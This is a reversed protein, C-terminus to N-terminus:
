VGLDRNNSLLKLGNISNVRIGYITSNQILKAQKNNWINGNCIIKINPVKKNILASALLNDSIDDLFYGTSPYVTKIDFEFLIQAVKYLLEYTFHRYELIYRLEVDTNTVLEKLIKIDERFKEYKRNSLYYTPCVIELIDAKNKLANEAISLRSRTDSVGLPFDIPTALKIKSDIISKVTKIQSPLVSITALNFKTVSKITDTLELDKLTADYYYYEIIM